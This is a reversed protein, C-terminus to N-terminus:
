SNINILAPNTLDIDRKKCEKKKYYKIKFRDKNRVIYRKLQKDM